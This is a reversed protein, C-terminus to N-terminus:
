MKNIVHHSVNHPTKLSIYIYMNSYYIKVINYNYVLIRNYYTNINVNFRVYIRHMVAIHTNTHTQYTDSFPIYKYHSALILLKRIQPMFKLIGIANFSICGFGQIYLGDERM